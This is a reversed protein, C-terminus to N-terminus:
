IVALISLERLCKLPTSIVFLFNLNPKDIQITPPVKPIVMAYILPIGTLEAVIVGLVNGNEDLLAGGSKGPQVPVSIQYLRLLQSM